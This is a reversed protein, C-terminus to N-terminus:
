GGTAVYVVERADRYRQQVEQHKPHAANAYAALAEPDSKLRTLEAQAEARNAFGQREMAAGVRALGEVVEAGSLDSRDQYADIAAMDHLGLIQAGRRAQDIKQAAGDGYRLELEAAVIWDDNSM